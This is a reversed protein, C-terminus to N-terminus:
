AIEREALRGIYRVVDLRGAHGANALMWTAWDLRTDGKSARYANPSPKGALIARLSEDTEVSAKVEAIRADERKRTNDRAIKQVATTANHLGKDGTRKVCDSGVTFTKGDADQITCCIAIGQYCYKCVGMAQGPAGATTTIGTKPDTWTHPGRDEYAGIFRFPARGLGAKEFDHIKSTTETTM